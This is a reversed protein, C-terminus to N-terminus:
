GSTTRAARSRRKTTALRALEALSEEVWRTWSKAHISEEGDHWPTNLTMVVGGDRYAERIMTGYGGRKEVITFQGSGPRETLVLEGHHLKDITIAVRRLHRSRHYAIVVRRDRALEDPVFSVDITGPEVGEARAEGIEAARRELVPVADRGIRADRWGNALHYLLRDLGLAKARVRWDAGRTARFRARQTALAPDRDPDIDCLVDAIVLAKFSEPDARLTDLITARTERIQKRAEHDLGFVPKQRLAQMAISRAIRAGV